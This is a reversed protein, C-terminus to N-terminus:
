WEATCSLMAVIRCHYVAVPLVLKTSTANKDKDRKDPDVYAPLGCAMTTCWRKWLPSTTFRSRPVKRRYLQKKKFDSFLRSVTERTTGIM